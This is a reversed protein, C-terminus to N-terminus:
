DLSGVAETKDSPLFSDELGAGSEIWIREQSVALAIGAGDLAAKIRRRSERAVPFQKLPQTKILVRLIVGRATFEDVGLIDPAELIVESWEPNQWLAQLVGRVIEIARDADAHYALPIKLDSRSWNSSLNAVIRIESNPVTILRGEIDRLQTIRLNMHEVLGGIEANLSIADGVGYQDELLIFFGNITDRILNQSALSLALGIIGAGALIPGIDIGIAALAALIGIGGWVVGTVGKSVESITKLRLQLRRSEKPDGLTSDGLAAAFRDIAAFSLRAAVWSGAAVLGVRVPIRFAWLLARQLPRTQPFLYLCYLGVGIWIGVRLLWLLQQSLRVLNVNGTWQIQSGVPGKSRESAQTLRLELNQLRRGLWILALHTGAAIALAFGVQWAQQFLYAQTREQRSLLLDAQLAQELNHALEATSLGQIEADLTTVTFLRIEEGVDAYLDIFGNNEQSYVRPTVERDVQRYHKAATQIQAEVTALRDPLEMAPAALNLICYGDLYVCGVANVNQSSAVSPLVRPPLFQRQLLVQAHALNGTTIFLAIICALCLFRLKM